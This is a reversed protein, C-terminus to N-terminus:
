SYSASDDEDTAFRDGLCWIEWLDGSRSVYFADEAVAGIPLVCINPLLNMKSM